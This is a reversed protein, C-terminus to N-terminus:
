NVYTDPTAREGWVRGTQERILFRVNAKGMKTDVEATYQIGTFGGIIKTEGKTSIRGELTLDPVGDIELHINKETEGYFFMEGAIKTLSYSQATSLKGDIQLFVIGWRYFEM